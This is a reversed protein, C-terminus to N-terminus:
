SCKKDHRIKTVPKPTKLQSLLDYPVMLSGNMLLTKINLKIKGSNWVVIDTNPKINYKRDQIAIMAGKKGLWQISAGPLHTIM